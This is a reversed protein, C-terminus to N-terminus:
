KKSDFVDMLLPESFNRDLSTAIGSQLMEKM